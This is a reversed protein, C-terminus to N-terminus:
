LPPIQMALQDDVRGPAALVDLGGRRLRRRRQMGRSVWGELAAKDTSADVSDAATSQVAACALVLVFFVVVFVVFPWPPQAQGWAHLAIVALLIFRV